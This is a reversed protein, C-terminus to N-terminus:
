HDGGDQKAEKKAERRAEIREIAREVLTTLYAEVAGKNSELWEVLKDDLTTKTHRAIFGGLVLLLIFLAGAIWGAIALTDM